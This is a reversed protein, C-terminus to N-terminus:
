ALYTFFFCNILCCCLNVSNGLLTADCGKLDGLSRKKANGGRKGTYREGYWKDVQLGAKAIICAHTSILCIYEM